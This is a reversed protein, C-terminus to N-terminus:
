SGTRAVPVGPWGPGPRFTGRRSPARQVVGVPTDGPTAVVRLAVERHARRPMVRPPLSDRCWRECDALLNGTSLARPEGSSSTGFLAGPERRSSPPTRAAGCPHEGRCSVGHDAGVTSRGLRAPLPPLVRVWGYTVAGSSGRM